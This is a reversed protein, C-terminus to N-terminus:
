SSETDSCYEPQRLFVSLTLSRKLLKTCNVFSALAVQRFTTHLIQDLRLLASFLTRQAMMGNMGECRSGMGTFLYAMQLVQFIQLFTM